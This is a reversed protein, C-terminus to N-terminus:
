NQEKERILSKLEEVEDMRSFARPLAHFCRYIGVAEKLQDLRGSKELATAYLLYSYGQNPNLQIAEQAALEGEGYYGVRNLADALLLHNDYDLPALEVARSFAKVAGQFQSWRNAREFGTGAMALYIEGKTRALKPHAPNAALGEEAYKLAEPLEHRYLANEAKLWAFEAPAVRLTAFLLMAALAATALCSSWRVLYRFWRPARTEREVGANALMGMCAAALLANAPIQMNFDFFSRVCFMIVAVTAALLLAAAHSQPRVNFSMRQKLVHTLGSLGAGLHVLAAVLCLALAPFGYDAALQLWDNHAFIDDSFAYFERFQRGYYVFTGPGTGWIPDLQFQRLAAGVLRNRAADTFLDGFRQQMSFSTSFIYIGVGIIVAVVSVVVILALFRRGQAGVWLVYASLLFFIALGAMLSLVGGRSLTLLSVVLTMLAVYFVLIKTKLGWRGWAAIALAFIGAVNLFWALHNGNLYFGHARGNLRSFYAAKLYESIWPLPMNEHKNAFQWAGLAAQIVAFLLLACVFTLRHLPNTIVCAFLLYLVVCGLVLRTYGAAMWADPSETGRWLLWGALAGVSALCGLSPTPLNRWFAAALALLGAVAIILYAPLAFVPRMLGGYLGQAVAIALACLIALLYRM